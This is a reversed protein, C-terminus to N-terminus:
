NTCPPSSYQAKGKPLVERTTTIRHSKSSSKGGFKILRKKKTPILFIYLSRKIITRWYFWTLVSTVPRGISLRVSLRVSPYVSPRTPLHASSLIYPHDYTYIALHISPSLSLSFSLCVCVYMCVYMCVSLCVSLYVSLCVSLCVSLSVSLYEFLCLSVSFSMCLPM